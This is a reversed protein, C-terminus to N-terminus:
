DLRAFEPTQLTTVERVSFGADNLYLFIIQGNYQSFPQEFRYIHELFPPTMMDM